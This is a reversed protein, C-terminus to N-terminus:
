KLTYQFSNQWWDKVNSIKSNSVKGSNDLLLHLLQTCFFNFRGRKPSVGKSEIKTDNHQTANATNQAIFRRADYEHIPCSRRTLKFGSLKVEQKKQTHCAHLKQNVKHM